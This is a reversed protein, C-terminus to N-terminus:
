RDARRRDEGHDTRWPRLGVALVAGMAAGGLAAVGPRDFFVGNAVVSSLYTWALLTLPIREDRIESRGPDPLALLVGTLLTGVLLWGLFNTVPIGNLAPGSSHWRWHGANVMQPDLFLDWTALVLGGVVAARDPAQQHRRVLVYAPYAMMAWALPVVLSVGFLRPGLSTGYVYRGFPVGTHVGLTEVALGGGVTVVVFAAAWWPGRTATAHTTSALFFVVVTAATLAGRATGDVLPYPIQTAVVGIALLWGWSPPRHRRTEGSSDRGPPRPARLAHPVPRESMM